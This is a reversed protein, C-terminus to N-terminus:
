HRSAVLKDGPKLVFVEGDACDIFVHRSKLTYPGSNLPTLSLAGYMALNFTMGRTVHFAAGTSLLGKGNPDRVYYGKSVIEEVAAPSDEWLKIRSVPQDLVSALAMCAVHFEGWRIALPEGNRIVQTHLPM